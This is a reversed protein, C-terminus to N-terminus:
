YLDSVQVASRHVCTEGHFVALVTGVQANFLDVLAELSARSLDAVDHDRSEQSHLRHNFYVIRVTIM